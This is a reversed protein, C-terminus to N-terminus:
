KQNRDQAKKVCGFPKGLLQTVNRCTQCPRTDWYHNDVQLLDCVVQLRQEAPDHFEIHKIVGTGADYTIAKVRPCAGRHVHGCWKCPHLLEAM